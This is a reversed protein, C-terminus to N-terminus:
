TDLSELGISFQIVVFAVFCVDRKLANSQKNQM